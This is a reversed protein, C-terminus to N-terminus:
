RRRPCSVAVPNGGRRRVTLWVEHSDIVVHTQSVTGADDRTLHIASHPFGAAKDDLITALDAGALAAYRARRAAEVEVSRYSSTTLFGEKGLWACTLRAGDWTFHRVEDGNWLLLHCPAHNTWDNRHAAAAIEEGSGHRSALLPLVGRSVRGSRCERAPDPYANMVAVVIGRENAFLWTGGAAPDRACLGPVPHSTEWTPDASAPRTWQEDRNFRIEWGDKAGIWAVSCM